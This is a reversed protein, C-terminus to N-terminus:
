AFAPWYPEGSDDLTEQLIDITGKEQATGLAKYVMTRLSGQRYRSWRGSDALSKAIRTPTAKGAGREAEILTRAAWVDAAFVGGGAVIHRGLSKAQATPAAISESEWRWLQLKRVRAARRDREAEVKAVFEPSLPVPASARARADRKNRRWRERRREMDVAMAAGM